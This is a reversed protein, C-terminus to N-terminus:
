IWFICSIGCLILATIQALIGATKNHLLKIMVIVAFTDFNTAIEVIVLELNSLALKCRLIFILMM